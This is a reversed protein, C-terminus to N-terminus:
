ELGIGGFSVQEYDSIRKKLGAVGKQKMISTQAAAFLKKWDKADTASLTGLWDAGGELGYQLSKLTAELRAEKDMALQRRAIGIKVLLEEAQALLARFKDFVTDLAGWPGNSRLSMHEVLRERLVSLTVVSQDAEDLLMADFAGDEGAGSAKVREIAVVFSSADVIGQLLIVDKPIYDAPVQGFIDKSLAVRRLTQAEASALWLLLLRLCWCGWFMYLGGTNIPCTVRLTAQRMRAHASTWGNGFPPRPARIAQVMAHMRGVIEGPFSKAAAQVMGAMAPAIKELATESLSTFSREALFKELRGSNSLAGDATDVSGLVEAIETLNGDRTNENMAQSIAAMANPWSAEDPFAACAEALMALIASMDQMKAGQKSDAFAAPM